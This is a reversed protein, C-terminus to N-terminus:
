RSDRDTQLTGPFSPLFRPWVPRKGSMRILRQMLIIRKVICGNQGVSDAQNQRRSPRRRLEKVFQADSSPHSGQAVMPLRLTERGGIGKTKINMCFGGRAVGKKQYEYLVGPPPTPNRKLSPQPISSAGAMASRTNWRVSCKLMCFRWLGQRELPKRAPDPWTRPAIAQKFFACL